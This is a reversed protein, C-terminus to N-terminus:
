RSLASNIIKVPDKIRVPSLDNLVKYFRDSITIHIIIFFSIIGILYAGSLSLLNSGYYYQVWCVPLIVIVSIITSILIEKINLKIKFIQKNVVYYSYLGTILASVLKAIAVGLLGFFYSFVFLPLFLFVTEFLTLKFRSAPSQFVFITRGFSVQFYYKLFIAFILIISPVIATNYEKGSLLLTFTPSLAAILFLVPVLLLNCISLLEEAKIKFVAMEYKLKSLSSTLVTDITQFFGQLLDALRKAIYYVALGEAGLFFTVLLNDGDRKFYMLFGELYFPFSEKILNKPSFFVKKDFLIDKLQFFSYFTVIFQTAVLGIALGIYGWQITLLLTLIVRSLDRLLILRSMQSFRSFSQMVYEQFKNVGKLLFGVSFMQFILTYKESDFIWISINESLFFSLVSFFLSNAVAILGITNIISKAKSIDSKVLSPVTKLMTPYLGFNFFVGSMSSLMIFAPLISFEEKSLYRTFYVLTILSFIKVFLNVSYVQLINMLTKRIRLAM